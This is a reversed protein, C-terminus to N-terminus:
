NKFLKVQKYFKNCRLQLLYIGEQSMSFDIEIKENIPAKSIITQYLLVGRLDVISLKLPYIKANGNTELYIKNGTIPNPYVNIIDSSLEGLSLVNSDTSVFFPIGYGFVNDPDDHQSAMSRIFQALEVNSLFPNAQWIGAAFGAVLPGSFSTGNAKQIKGFANLVTTGTGLAVLDPKIRGDASPGYSSFNSREYNSQISGITLNDIGDGPATIYKWNTDGENGASTVVLMGKKMALNSAKTIITTEGNMDSYEYDMDADTFTSYGLSSSIIDAGISDAFEAALLWNFEEIRYENSVDETVCLIFDAEPATGKLHDDYSAITSLVSTGHGSYLFPDGGNSTFDKVAILHNDEFVHRLPEYLNAGMFGGDLVAILIGEGKFGDEHMAGVNLMELQVESSANTNNAPLFTEPLDYSLYEKTLKSGPAVYWISDVHKFQGIQIATASDTQVLAANMWRSTFFVTAALSEISDVYIQNVPLDDEDIVVSHAAKRDVSKQSLFALPNTVSFESNLKDTFFVMYRNSQAQIVSNLYITLAIFL